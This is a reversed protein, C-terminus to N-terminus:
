GKKRERVVSWATIVTEPDDEPNAASREPGTTETKPPSVM